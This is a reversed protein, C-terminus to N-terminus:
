ATTNALFPFLVLIVVGAMCYLDSYHNQQRHGGHPPFHVAQLTMIIESTIESRKVVTEM